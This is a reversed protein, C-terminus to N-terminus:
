IGHLIERLIWIQVWFLPVFYPSAPFDFILLFNLIELHLDIYIYIPIRVTPISEASFKVDIKHRRYKKKNKAQRLIIWIFDTTFMLIDFFFFPKKLRPLPLFAYRPPNEVSKKSKLYLFIFGSDPAFNWDIQYNADLKIYIWLNLNM